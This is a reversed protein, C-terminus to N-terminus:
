CVFLVVGNSMRGVNESSLLVCLSEATIVLFYLVFCCKQLNDKLFISLKVKHGYLIM